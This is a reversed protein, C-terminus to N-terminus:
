TAPINLAGILLHCLNEHGGQRGWLLPLALRFGCVEGLRSVEDRQFDAATVPAECFGQLSYAEICYANIEFAILVFCAHWDERRVQGGFPASFIHPGQEALVFDSIHM